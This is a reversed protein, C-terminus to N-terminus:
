VSSEHSVEPKPSLHHRLEVLEMQVQALCSMSLAARQEAAAIQAALRRNENRLRGIEVAAIDASM